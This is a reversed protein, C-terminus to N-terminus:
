VMYMKPPESMHLIPRDFAFAPACPVDDLAIEGLMRGLLSAFKFAHGAGVAMCVDPHGAVRDLVFDRDPTLTYLCTKTHGEHAVLSPLHAALFARMRMGIAPDPDFGRTDPDVVQGGADQAVKVGAGAFLPFGYFNPDDMWIWVPFAGIAFQEAHQPSFYTVQEKTVDLSMSTGLMSLARSTWPGAAVVLKSARFTEGGAVVQIEGNRDDIATVPMDDRLDAGFARAARALAATGRAAAVIGGDEQYIGHVDDGIEFVPWRRRIADADLEEFPVGCERMSAAYGGIPIAGDRPGLDLSGTRTVITEGTDREVADWAAYAARALRVYAPTHYSLRIIRSHDHSEGREHGLSFQELGLVRAGRKALWYAAGSGIGGLGLVIVDYTQASV